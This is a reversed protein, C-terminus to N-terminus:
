WTAGVRVIAGDVTARRSCSARVGGELIQGPRGSRRALRARVVGSREANAGFDATDHRSGVDCRSRSETLAKAACCTVEALVAAVLDPEPTIAANRVRARDRTRRFAQRSTRFRPAWIKRRCFQYIAPHIAHRPISERSTSFLEPRIGTGDAAGSHRQGKGPVPSRECSKTSSTPNRYRVSIAAAAAGPAHLTEGDARWIGNSARPSCKRGCGLAM